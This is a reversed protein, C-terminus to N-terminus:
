FLLYNYPKTHHSFYTSIALCQGTGTAMARNPVNVVVKKYFRRSVSDCQAWTRGSRSKPDQLHGAVKTQYLKWWFAGRLSWFGVKGGKQAGTGWPDPYLSDLRVLYSNPVNLAVRIKHVRRWLSHGHSWFSLPGLDKWILIQSGFLYGAKVLDPPHPYRTSVWSGEGGGELVMATGFKM